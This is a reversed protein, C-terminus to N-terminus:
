QKELWAQFMLISWLKLSHDRRGQLHDSWVRRVIVSNFYGEQELRQKNLLAEAWDKLPGRLWQGLPVSFGKKPREIMERPVHRYLVERLVWKGVGDRIKMHIPLQWALEVVRHDLLPVRTELSNAMAARDVKVLIDDTMYQSADMAMMWHEFSDTKPWRAVNNIFTPYEKGGIVLQETNDWHSMLIQYFQEKDKAPLVRLLKAFKDPLPLGSLLRCAIQRLPLPLLQLKGWVRPAFQYPNYGGFLEDGGDGSLAVTVHQKAMRSVLFTPLQSSDAFPECYIDPLRPVLDFADKASVYLESHSTGLHQAVEKAYEAENYGPEDFGIAFTRVPQKSQQQMLAVVTSSDVGGSLFAGLPVDSLMQGSVAQSITQELLDTAQIDTGNFPNALGHEISQNLQWYVKLQVDARQQGKKIQVYQGAPLKEIGQYITYPAPIYNYRLLLSLSRRDVQTNFAPHAKLAKLESGFLLTDGCWGWYLPKEGLRDRALTLQQEQKDWLAMAFMGVTAKLTTEIGWASFCALLTETDSHGRWAPASGQSKLQDRLDLHNYIEGNFAIVFRDCASAMPQHGAPSLDVVSLRNHILGTTANHNSWSGVDDPGRHLLALMSNNEFFSLSLNLTLWGSIGCM